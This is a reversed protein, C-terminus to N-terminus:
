YHIRHYMLNYQINPADKGCAKLGGKVGIESEIAREVFTSYIKEYEALVKIQHNEDVYYLREDRIVHHDEGRITVTGGPGDFSIEGSELAEIVAETETTGAKEVAAKYLYVATYATEADFEVYPMEDESYREHMMKTFRKAAPTQLEEIYSSMFYTNAMVPAAWEKHLHSLGIGITSILPVDKLGMKYWERYFGNQNRSVCFSIVIDPKAARINEITKDYDTKLVSFYEVNVVSGGIKEMYDRTCEAMLVGYNYDAAVVYCRKGYIACLYELMPYLNHEPASSICFTYHDALGGEYLANFFYPIGQKNCVKRIEERASSLQGGMIVDVKEIEALEWVIESVKAGDSKFDRIVLRLKKGNIGGSENIERAAQEYAYRRAPAIVAYSGEYAGIIGIAIENRKREEIAVEREPILVIRKPFKLTVTCGNNMCGLIDVEGGMREVARKVISLGIGNGEYEDSLHAREFMGFLDAAYKMDFGVGNDEFCYNYTNQDEYAYVRMRPKESNRMFKVANSLINNFMQRMLFSDGILNPIDEVVLRVDKSKYSELVSTFCEVIMGEMDIIERNLIVENLVSYRMLMQIMERSEACIKQIAILDKLSQVDMMKGSDESIMDAYLSIEQFPAKLEHAVMSMYHEMDNVVQNAERISKSNMVEIRNRLEQNEERLARIMEKTANVENGKEM